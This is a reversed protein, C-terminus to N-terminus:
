QATCRYDIDWTLNGLAAGNNDWTIIPATNSRTSIFTTARANWAGTGTLAPTFTCSPTTSISGAFTGAFNMTVTGAATGAATVTIRLTGHENTSGNDAAACTATAGTVTPCTPKLTTSNNAGQTNGGLDYFTATNQRLIAGNTAGGAFQSNVAYCKATGQCWLGFSGANNTVLWQDGDFYCTAATGGTGCVVGAVTFSANSLFAQCGFCHLQGGTNVNVMEAASGTEGFQCGYCVDNSGAGLAMNTGANDGAFLYYFFSQNGGGDTFGVGNIGCGDEIVMSFRSDLSQIGTMNSTSGGWGACAVNTFQAGVNAVIAKKGSMGAGLFSDGGGWISINNITGSFASFFCGNQAGAGTCTAPDFVKEAGANGTATANPLPIIITVAQGQGNVQFGYDVGSLTVDPSCTNGQSNFLGVTTFSLGAPAQISACGNLATSATQAAQWATTDDTGWMLCGTAGASSGTAAVSVTAVHANVTLIHGVPVLVQSLFMSGVAGCSSGFVTKGVDAAVFTIQASSTVTASTNTFTFDTGLKVDAKVGYTSSAPFISNAGFAVSTIGGGGAAWLTCTTGTSATCQRQAPTTVNYYQGGISCSVETDAYANVGPGCNVSITPPILTVTQSAGSVTFTQVFCQAPIGQQPCVSFQWGSLTPLISANPTLTLSAGGTASLAGTQSQNPVSGGALLNFPPGFNTAGQQSKLVVSWTGNNWSQAGADTVQLTVSTSQASALGPFSVIMLLTLLLTKKMKGEGGLEESHM